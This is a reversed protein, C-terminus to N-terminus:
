LFRENRRFKWKRLGWGPSQKSRASARNIETELLECWWALQADSERSKEPGTLSICVTLCVPALLLLCSWTQAIISTRHLWSLARHSGLAWRMAVDCCACGPLAVGALWAPPIFSVLIRNMSTQVAPAETLSIPSQWIDSGGQPCLKELAPPSSSFCLM